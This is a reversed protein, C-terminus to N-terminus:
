SGLERCPHWPMSSGLQGKEKSRPYKPMKTSRARVVTYKDAEIHCKSGAEAKMIAVATRDPGQFTSWCYGSLHAKYANIVSRFCLGAAARPKETQCIVRM